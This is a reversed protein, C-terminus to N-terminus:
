LHHRPEILITHNQLYQIKSPRLSITRWFRDQVGVILDWNYGQEFAYCQLLNEVQLLTFNYISEDATFCSDAVLFGRQPKQNREWMQKYHEKIDKINRIYNVTRHAESNKAEQLEYCNLFPVIETDWLWLSPVATHSTLLTTELVQILSAM